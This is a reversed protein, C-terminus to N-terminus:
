IAFIATLEYLYLRYINNNNINDNNNNNNNNNNYDFWVAYETGCFTIYRSNDGKIHKRWSCGWESIFYQNM